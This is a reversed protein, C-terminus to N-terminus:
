IFNSQRIYTCGKWLTKCIQVSSIGSYHIHKLGHNQLTLSYQALSLRPMFVEKELVFCVMNPTM